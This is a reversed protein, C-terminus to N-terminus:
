PKSLVELATRLAKRRSNRVDKTNPGLLWGSESLIDSFIQISSLKVERYKAIALLASTEMNVGLVGETQFKRFKKKTERYVGDTTWVVGKYFRQGQENFHTEIRQCLESDCKLEVKPPFYHHSTGEDRKAGTAIFIDGIKLFPQIGGAIGVEIIEKAGFAIIEELIMSAASAGIWSCIIGIPKSKYRGVYLPRQRSYWWDVFKGSTLRQLYRLDRRSYVVILRAPIKLDEKKLGRRQAIYEAFQSPTFIEEDCSM